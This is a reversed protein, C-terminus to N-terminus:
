RTSHTSNYQKCNHLFVVNTEILFYFSFEMEPETLVSSLTQKVETSYLGASMKAKPCFAHYHQMAWQFMDVNDIDETASSSSRSTFNVM